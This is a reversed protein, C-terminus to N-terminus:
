LQRADSLKILESKGTANDTMNKSTYAFHLKAVTNLHTLQCKEITEHSHKYSFNKSFKNVNSNTIESHLNQNRRM